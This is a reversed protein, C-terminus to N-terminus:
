IVYDQPGLEAPNDSARVAATLREGGLLLTLGRKRIAELQAGRAVVSVENGARALRAALHGGVAGAGYVCIKMGADSGEDARGAARGQGEWSPFCRRIVLEIKCIPPWPRAAALRSAVMFM